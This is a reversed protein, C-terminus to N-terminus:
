GTGDRNVLVFGDDIIREPLPRVYLEDLGPKLEAARPIRAVPPLGETVLQAERAAEIRVHVVHVAEVDRLKLDLLACLHLTVLLLSSGARLTRPRVDLHALRREREVLVLVPRVDFTLMSYMM